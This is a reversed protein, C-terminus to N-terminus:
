IRDNLARITSGFSVDVDLVDDGRGTDSLFEVELAHRHVELTGVVVGLLERAEDVPRLVRFRRREDEPGTFDDARTRFRCVIGGLRRMTKSLSRSSFTRTSSSGSITTWFM